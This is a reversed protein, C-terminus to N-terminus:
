FHVILINPAVKRWEDISLYGNKDSDMADFLHSRFEEDTVQSRDKLGPFLQVASERKIPNRNGQMFEQKDLSRNNNNDLTDFLKDYMDGAVASGILFSTLLLAPLIRM